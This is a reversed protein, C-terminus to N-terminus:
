VAAVQRLVAVPQLIEVAAAVPEQLVQAPLQLLQDPAAQVVPLVPQQEPRRLVAAVAPMLPHTIQRVMIEKDAQEQAAQEM